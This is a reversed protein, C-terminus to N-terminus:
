KLYLKKFDEINVCNSEILKSFIKKCSELQNNKLFMMNLDFRNCKSFLRLLEVIFDYNKTDDLKLEFLTFFEGLLDGNIEVHFLEKLQQTGLNNLFLWKLDNSDLKKWLTRFELNTKPVTEILYPKKSNSDITNSLSGISESPANLAVCNWVRNTRSAANSNLSEGKELPKLHSALVMKRFDEYTAVRQEVARLKASNERWYKEELLIENKVHNQLKEINIVCKENNDM